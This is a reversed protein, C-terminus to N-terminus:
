PFAAACYRDVFIHQKFGHRIEDREQRPLLIPVCASCLGRSHLAPPLHKRHLAPLCRASAMPLPFQLGPLKQCLHGSKYGYNVLGPSEISRHATAIILAYESPISRTPQM